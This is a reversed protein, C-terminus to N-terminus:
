GLHVDQAREEAKKDTRAKREEPSLLGEDEENEANKRAKAHPHLPIQTESSGNFRSIVNDVLRKIQSELWRFFRDIVTPPHASTRNSSSSKESTSQKKEPALRQMRKELSSTVTPESRPRTQREITVVPSFSSTKLESPPPKAQTLPAERTVQVKSLDLTDKPAREAIRGREQWIETGKSSM